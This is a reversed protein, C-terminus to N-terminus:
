LSSYDILDQELIKNKLVYIQQKNLGDSSPNQLEDTLFELIDEENIVEKSNSNIAEDQMEKLETAQRAADNLTLKDTIVFIAANEAIEEKVYEEHKAQEELIYDPGM